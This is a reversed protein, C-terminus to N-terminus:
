RGVLPPQCNTHGHPSCLFSMGGTHGVLHQSAVFSHDLDLRLRLRTVFRDLSPIVLQVLLLLQIVPRRLNLAVQICFPMRSLFPGAVFVLHPSLSELILSSLRLNELRNLVSVYLRRLLFAVGLAQVTSPSIGRRAFLGAHPFLDGSKLGFQCAFSLALDLRFGSGSEICRLL